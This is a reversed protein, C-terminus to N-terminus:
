QRARSKGKAGIRNKPELKQKHLPPRQVKAPKPWVSNPPDGTRNQYESQLYFLCDQVYAFFTEQKKLLALDVRYFITVARDARSNTKAADEYNVFALYKGDRAWCCHSYQNRIQVAYGLDGITESFPTELKATTYLERALGDAIQIRQSEGRMRYLAKVAINLDYAAAICNCLEVELEAYALLLRGIAIRQKPFDRLFPFNFSKM